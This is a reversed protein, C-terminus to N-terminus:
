ELVGEGRLREAQADNPMFATLGDLSELYDRLAKAMDDWVQEATAHTSVAAEHVLEGWELTEGLNMLKESAYDNANWAADIEYWELAM